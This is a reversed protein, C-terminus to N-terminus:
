VDERLVVTDMSIIYFCSQLHDILLIGVFDSLNLGRM